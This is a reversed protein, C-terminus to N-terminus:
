EMTLLSLLEEWNMQKLVSVGEQLVTDFVKKKRKQLEFIKEEISGKALLRYVNVTKEQGIRHARGIAQNEVAPNWWPDFLIVSNAGTLNLGTGGARLSILFVPADSENFADVLQPRNKTRGDMYFYEIENKHFERRIIKLMSVFQSFVLMRHGSDIAEEVLELLASLKISIESSDVELYDSEVLGPHLCIQRLRTLAALFDIYSKEHGKDEVAQLYSNKVKSLTDIYVAKQKETLEVRITQEIKEPLERYVTDKTRRLVFPAIMEQLRHFAISRETQDFGDLPSEFNKRFWSYNGMYGPMLFDFVSWLETVNNELPTGTVAIRNKSRFEKLSQTRKASKNKIHQAEDLVIYLFEHRLYEEQDLHSMAYSTILLDYKAADKIQEIREAKPGSIVCYSLAGDMFKEIEAAWNLVLSRPCVILSTGEGKISLLFTLIQLTKGLGMEDALIGGFAYRHLFRLWNLGDKQYNRLVGEVQAPIEVKKIAQGGKLEEPLHQLHEPLTPNKVGSLLVPLRYKRIFAKDSEFLLNSEELLTRVESLEEADTTLLKGDDTEVFGKSILLRLESLTLEVEDIRFRFKVELWNIRNEAEIKEPYSEELIEVSESSIKGSVFRLPAKENRIEVVKSVAPLFKLFLNENDRTEIRNKDIENLFEFFNKFGAEAVKRAKDYFPTKNKCISLRQPSFPIVLEEDIHVNKQVEKFHFPAKFVEGEYSGEFFATIRYVDETHEFYLVIKMDDFDAVDPLHVFRDIQSPTLSKKRLLRSESEGSLKFDLHLFLERLMSPTFASLVFSIESGKILYGGSHSPLLISEDEPPLLAHSIRRYEAQLFRPNPSLLLPTEDMLFVDFEFLSEFFYPELPVPLFFSEDDRHNQFRRLADFLRRKELPLGAFDGFFDPSFTSKEASQFLYDRDTETLNKLRVELEEVVRGQIIFHLYIELTTQKM